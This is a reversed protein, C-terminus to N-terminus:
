DSALLQTQWFLVNGKFVYTNGKITNSIFYAQSVTWTTLFFDCDDGPGWSTRATHKEGARKSWKPKAKTQWQDFKNVSMTVVCFLSCCRMSCAATCGSSINQQLDMCVWLMDSYLQQACLSNFKHILVPWWMLSYHRTSIYSIHVTKNRTYTTIPSFILLQM